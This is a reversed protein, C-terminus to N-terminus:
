LKRSNSSSNRMPYFRLIVYGLILILINGVNSWIYSRGEILDNSLYFQIFDLLSNLQITILILGITKLFIYLINKVTYEDLSTDTNNTGLIFFLNNKQLLYIGFLLMVIFYLLKPFNLGNYGSGCIISIFNIIIGFIICVGTTKIFISFLEKPGNVM